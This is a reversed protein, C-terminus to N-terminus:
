SRWAPQCAGAAGRRASRLSRRQDDPQVSLRDHTLRRDAHRLTRSRELRDGDEDRRRETSGAAGRPRTDQPGYECVRRGRRAEPSEAAAGAQVVVDHVFRLKEIAGSALVFPYADALGLGRNLNNLVYTVPHWGAVMQEFAGSSTAQRRCARWSRSAAAGRPRISLGCAAATELTDTMHLYHAWTEAWDEWPHASAYASVFRQQWDGPPGAQYHRELAAAYDDQESASCSASADSCHVAM